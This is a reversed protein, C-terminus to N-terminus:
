TGKTNGFLDVHFRPTLRYGREVCVGVLMRERRHLTSPDTGEAMLLVRAPDLPVQAFLADIEELQAALGTEPNVVIKVQHEYREVLSHFSSRDMRSREHRDRWIPDDPTSNALKPSLSMLDCPLERFVTGATEITIVHGAARLGECLPMVSDFYLPEGGTVVVHKVGRGTVDSLIEKVELVPGEPKWSAYPTDCWSCRLNCGSVRVFTSPVGVWIGEGQISTFIEAIRLKELRRNQVWRICQM